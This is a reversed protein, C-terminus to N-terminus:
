VPMRLLDQYARVVQDRVAVVTQLTIEANNLAEGVETIDAEGKVAQASMKEAKHQTNISDQVAGMLDDFFASGSKQAASSVGIGAANAINTYAQTVMKPDGIGNVAM